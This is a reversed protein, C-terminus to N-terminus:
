VLPETNFAELDTALDVLQERMEVGITTDLSEPTLEALPATV